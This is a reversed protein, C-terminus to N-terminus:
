KGSKPEVLPFYLQVTTGKGLESEICVSGNYREMIGYVLSLGMGTGKGVEKTTFFPEFARQIINKNMGTGTDNVSLKAYRGTKSLNFKDLDSEQISLTKLSTTLTGSGSSMAHAANSCLNIVVQHVEAADVLVLYDEPPVDQVIKISAPLTAELFIMIEHILKHFIIPALKPSTVRSFTLIQSILTKAQHGAKVIREMQRQAPGSPPINDLVIEANLIIIGLFNNFEHAIGGALTGLSQMKQAQHLQNELLEQKKIAEKRATIDSNVSVYVEGHVSHKFKSVKAYCWFITGDKKINVVEGQWSRTKALIGRIEDVAEEASKDFPANVIAVPQGAMEGANYGFMKEFKPNAFVITADSAKVLYVGETMNEIIQAQLSLAEEAQKRESIDHQFVFFLDGLDRNFNSSVEVQLIHGDKHRHRTEFREHGCEIVEAVHKQVEEPSEDVEIDTIHMSLMEERSYGLMACFSDNVEIVNGSLDVIWFADISSDLITRHKQESKQLHEKATQLEHMKALLQDYNEAMASKHMDIENAMNNFTTALIGVENNSSVKTRVKYDGDTFNNVTTTLKKIPDTIHKTAFLVGVAVMLLTILILFIMFQDYQYVPAFTESHDIRIVLGWALSPIYDWAAVIKRGRYNTTEGYGKGGLVAKLMPSTVGEQFVLGQQLAEPHNRLPGAAVVTGDPLQRGAVLKSSKGLGVYDSFIEFLHDENLQIAIAGLVENDALLPAAMFVTKKNSPQYYVFPNIESNNLSMAKEFTQALGSKRYLGDRLNIGMDKGMALTLVVDGSKNILFIDHYVYRNQISRLFTLAEGTLITLGDHDIGHGDYHHSAQQLAKIVLPVKSLTMINQKNNEVYLEIRKGREHILDSLHKTTEEVIVDHNHNHAVLFSIALPLIALVLFWAGIQWSIQKRFKNEM